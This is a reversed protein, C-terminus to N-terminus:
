QAQSGTSIADSSRQSIDFELIAARGQLDRALNAMLYRLGFSAHAYKANLTTLVLDAVAADYGGRAYRPMPRAMVM